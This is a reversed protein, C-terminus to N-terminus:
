AKVTASEDPKKANFMSFFKLWYMVKGDRFDALVTAARALGALNAVGMLTNLVAILAGVLTTLIGALIGCWLLAKAVVPGVVPLKEASVILEQAWEPPAAPEPVTVTPAATAVAPASASTAGPPVAAAVPSPVLPGVEARCFSGIFTAALVLLIAVYLKSAMKETM